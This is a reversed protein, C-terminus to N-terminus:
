FHSHCFPQPKHLNRSTKVTLKGILFSVLGPSNLLYVKHVSFINKSFSTDFHFFIHLGMTPRSVYALPLQATARSEAGIRQLRPKPYGGPIGKNSSPM